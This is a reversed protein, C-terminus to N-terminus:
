KVSLSRCTTYLQNLSRRHQLRIPWFKCGHYLMQYVWCASIAWHESCWRQYVWCAWYKVVGDRTCEAHQFPEISVVGDRTCEAHQFLHSLVWYVMEPLPQYVCCASIAWYRSCWRQYVCCASIAWYEICQVWYGIEPVWLSGNNAYHSYGFFM